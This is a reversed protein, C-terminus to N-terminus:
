KASEESWFRSYKRIFALLWCAAAEAAYDRYHDDKETTGYDSVGKDAVAPIGLEAAAQLFAKVELDYARTSRVQGASQEFPADVALITADSAFAGVHAKPRDRDPRPKCKGGAETKRRELLDRGAGTIEGAKNLLKRRRLWGLGEAYEIKEARVKDWDPADVRFGAVAIQCLLWEAQFRLSRPRTTKITAIWGEDSLSDKAQQVVWAPSPHLHPDPQFKAGQQKGERPQFGGEAIIVDGFEIGDKGEWGACIGTMALMRPRLPKLRHVAGATPTEGYRWLSVAVVDLAQGDFDLWKHYHVFKDIAFPSWSEKGGTQRFVPDLEDPMATVIALDCKTPPAGPAIPMAGEAETASAAPAPHPEHKALYAAAATQLGTHTGYDAQAVALLAVVKRQLHAERLANHWRTQAPAELLIRGTPVGATELLVRTEALGPYLVELIQRLASLTEDWAM